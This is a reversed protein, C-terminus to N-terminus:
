RRSFVSGAAELYIKTLRESTLKGAHIWLSLQQVTAFAIDETARVPLLGPDSITATVLEKPVSLAESLDRDFCM